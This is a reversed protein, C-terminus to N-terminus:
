IEIVGRQFRVAIEELSGDDRQQREDAAEQCPQSPASSLDWIV